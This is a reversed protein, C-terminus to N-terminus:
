GITTLITEDLTVELADHGVVDSYSNSNTVIVPTTMSYGASEIENMDFELLLDGRKIKQGQEVMAKFHNGELQVTNIGVHILIEAGNDSVLGIAHGTPFMVSVTGDVPAYVKGESPKIAVGKGMAGSAFVEDEVESLMCVAGKIPSYITEDAITITSGTTETESASQEEALVNKNEYGFVMVAAMAMFFSTLLGIATQLMPEYVPISMFCPFAFAMGKAGVMGNMAGGVAGSVLVYVLTGRYKTLFGYIIPETVGSLSGTIFTTYALAREEKNKTKLAIALAVGLQAFVASALMPALPDGGHGLNYIIIPVIGWHLGFVTLPMWTAGVVAGTLLSSKGSLFEIGTGIANGVNVGFPGFVLLTLPVIVVFSLLPVMFLQISSPVIKKLQKEFPAFVAMAVFIPFVTSSYDVMVLPIGLIHQAGEAGALGAVSPELLAAGIAGGVYPNAGLNKSITVGLFVPLFYFVANATGSLVIYTTETGTMVGMKILIALIAKLMGAGALAGLIPSFSRSIVNFVRDFLSMKPMDEHDTEVIHTEKVIEKYVENVHTGIVVQFQGGGIVVSLIGPLEEVKQKNAKKMDKLQFRLRTACHVLGSINKEGGVREIIDMALAKHKSM